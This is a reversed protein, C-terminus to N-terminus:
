FLSASTLHQSVNTSKPYLQYLIRLAKEHDYSWKKNRHYKITQYFQDLYKKENMKGKDTFFCKFVLSPRGQKCAYIGTCYAYKERYKEKLPIQAVFVTDANFPAKKATLTVVYQELDPSISNLPFDKGLAERMDYIMQRRAFCPYGDANLSDRLSGFLVSNCEPYLILCDEDESRMCGIYISEAEKKGSDGPTCSSTDMKEWTFGGPQKWTMDMVESLYYSYKPFSQEMYFQASAGVTIFSYFLVVLLIFKYFIRDTKPYHNNNM